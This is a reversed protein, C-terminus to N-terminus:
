EMAILMLVFLEEVNSVFSRYNLSFNLSFMSYVDVDDYTLTMRNQMTKNRASKWQNLMNRSHIRHNLRYDFSHMSFVHFNVYDDVLVYYWVFNMTLLRILQITRVLLLDQVAHVDDINSVIMLKVLDEFLHVQVVVKCRVMSIEKKVVLYENEFMRDVVYVMAVYMEVMVIVMVVNM